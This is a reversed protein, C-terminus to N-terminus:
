PFLGIWMRKKSGNVPWGHRSIFGLVGYGRTTSPICYHWYTSHGIIKGTNRHSRLRCSIFRYAADNPPQWWDHDDNIVAHSASPSHSLCRRSQLVDFQIPPPPQLSWRRRYRVAFLPGTDGAAPRLNRRRAAADVDNDRVASTITRVIGFWWDGDEGDASRLASWRRRGVSHRRANCAVDEPTRNGAGGRNLATREDMSHGCWTANCGHLGSGPRRQRWPRRICHACDKWSTVGNLIRAYPRYVGDHTAAIILSWKPKAKTIDPYYETICYYCQTCPTAGSLLGSGFRMSFRDTIGWKEDFKPTFYAGSDTPIVCEVCSRIQNHRVWNSHKLSRYQCFLHIGYIAVLVQFLPFVSIFSINVHNEM